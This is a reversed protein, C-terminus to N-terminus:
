WQDERRIEHDTGVNLDALLDKCPPLIRMCVINTPLKVNWVSCIDSRTWMSKCRHNSLLTQNLVRICIYLYWYCNCYIGYTTSWFSYMLEAGSVTCACVVLQTEM